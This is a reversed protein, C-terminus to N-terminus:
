EGYQANGERLLTYRVGAKAMLDGEYTADIFMRGIFRDGNITKISTIRRGSTRVGQQRDLWQNRHVRLEYDRVYNEFVDEAVHPEFCWMTRNPGDM